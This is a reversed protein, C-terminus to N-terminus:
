MGWRALAAEAKHPEDRIRLVTQRTLHYSKAVQAVSMFKLDSTVADFQKRDYGPKRGRYKKADSKAAAIGATQAEKQVEAQAQATAAM